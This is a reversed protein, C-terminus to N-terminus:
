LNNFYFSKDFFREEINEPLYIEVKCNLNNLRNVMLPGVDMWSLGGLGCGLAPFAASKIDYREYNRVFWDLGSEIYSIKSMEKWHRKTPFLLFKTEFNESFYIYPKGIDIEKSKCLQQYVVYVDPYMYKFRSALGKGMVGVINVSVTLLECGSTFMDGQIISINNTIQSTRIPEFFMDPNLVVEIGFNYEKLISEIELKTNEDPVYITEIFNKDIKSEVLIESQLFKKPTLYRYDSKIYKGINIMGIDSNWDRISRIDSFLKYINDIQNISLFISYDSAANGISVLVKESKLLDKGNVGLVVLPQGSKKYIQYMMANRPNIYLNVYNQLEKKERKKMVEDNSIKKYKLGLENILKNSLLGNNLISVINDKNTM